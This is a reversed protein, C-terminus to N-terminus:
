RPAPHRVPRTTMLQRRARPQQMPVDHLTHPQGNYNFNVTWLWEGVPETIRNDLRLKIGAKADCTSWGEKGASITGVAVEAKIIKTFNSPVSTLKAELNSISESGATNKFLVKIIQRKVFENVVTESCVEYDKDIVRPNPVITYSRSTQGVLGYSDTVRLTATGPTAAEFTKIMKTYNGDAVPTGDEAGNFIGDGNLDWEYSVIQDDLCPPVGHCANTDYAWSADFTAPVGALGGLWYILAIPPSNIVM